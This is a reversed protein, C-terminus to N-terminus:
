ISTYIQWVISKRMPVNSNCIGIVVPSTVINYHLKLHMVYFRIEGLPKPFLKSFHKSQNQITKLLIKPKSFHLFQSNIHNHGCNFILTTHPTWLLFNTKTFSQRTNRLFLFFAKLEVVTREWDEFSWINIEKWICRM